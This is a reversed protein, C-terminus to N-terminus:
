LGGKTEVVREVRFIKGLIRVDGDCYKAIQLKEGEVRMALKNFVLVIFEDSLFQIDTVGQFYGGSLPVFACRAKAYADYLEEYLRM